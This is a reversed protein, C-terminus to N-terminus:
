KPTDQNYKRPRPGFSSGGGPMLPSRSSGQRANGTGKQRFPKKGGGRVEGKGKVCATGQRMSARQANIVQTVLPTNVKQSFVEDLLEITSVKENKLNVVNIQAM